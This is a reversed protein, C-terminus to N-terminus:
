AAHPQLSLGLGSTFSSTFVTASLHNMHWQCTHSHLIWAAATIISTLFRGAPVELQSCAQDTLPGANELMGGLRSLASELNGDPQRDDTSVKSVPGSDQARSQGSQPPRSGSSGPNGAADKALKLSNAIGEFTTPGALLSLGVLRNSNHWM